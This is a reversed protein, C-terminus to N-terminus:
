GAAARLFDLTLLELDPFSRGQLDLQVANPVDTSSPRMPSFGAPTFLLGGEVTGDEYRLETTTTQGDGVVRIEEIRGSDDYSLEWQKGSLEEIEVLRGEEFALEYVQSETNDGSTVFQNVKELEGSDAYRREVRTTTTFDVNFTNNHIVTVTESEELVGDKSWEYETTRTLTSDLAAPGTLTAKALKSPDDKSYNLRTSWRNGGSITELEDLGGEDWVLELEARDGSQPEIDLGALLGDEYALQLTTELADDVYREVEALTGDKAYRAQYRTVETTDGSTKTVEVESLRVRARGGCAATVVLVSLSFLICIRRTM